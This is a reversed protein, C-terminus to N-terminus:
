TIIISVTSGASVLIYSGSQALARIQGANPGILYSWNNQAVGTNISIIFELLLFSVLTFIFKKM